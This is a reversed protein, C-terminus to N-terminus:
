RLTVALREKSGIAERFLTNKRVIEPQLIDLLAVFKEHSMRFYQFFKVDDEMLDPFLTHFEGLALRKKNINHVWLKRKKRNTEEEALLMGIVVIEEESDSM